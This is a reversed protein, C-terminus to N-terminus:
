RGPSALDALIPRARQQFENPTMKLPRELSGVDRALKQFIRDAIFRGAGRPLLPDKVDPSFFRAVEAENASDLAALLERAILAQQKKLRGLQRPDVGLIEQEPADAVLARVALMAAGERFIRRALPGQSRSEPVRVEHYLQFLQRAMVARRVAPQALDPHRANFLLIPRGDAATGKFVTQWPRAVGFAVVAPPLQGIRQEFAAILAKAEGPASAEFPEVLALVADPNLALKTLLPGGPDDQTAGSPRLVDANMAEWARWAALAGDNSTAKAAHQRAIFDPLTDVLELQRTTGEARVANRRCGGTTLAVVSLVVVSLHSIRVM